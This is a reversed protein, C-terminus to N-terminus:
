LEQLESSSGEWVWDGTHQKNFPEARDIEQLLQTEQATASLAELVAPHQYANIGFREDRVEERIEHEHLLYHVYAPLESAIAAEIAEGSPLPLKVYNCKFIMLKDEISEDM